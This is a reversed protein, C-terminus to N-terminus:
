WSKRSCRLPMRRFSLRYSNLLKIDLPQLHLMKRQLKMILEMDQIPPQTMCFTPIKLPVTKRIFNSQVTRWLQLTAFVWYNLVRGKNPMARSIRQQWYDRHEVRGVSQISSCVLILYFIQTFLRYIIKLISIMISLMLVQPVMRRKWITSEVSSQLSSSIERIARM